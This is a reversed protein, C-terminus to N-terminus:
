CDTGSCTSGDPNVTHGAEPEGTAPDSIGSFGSNTETNESRGAFREDSRILGSQTFTHHHGGGVDHGALDNGVSCDGNGCGVVDQAMTPSVTFAAAILLVVKLM